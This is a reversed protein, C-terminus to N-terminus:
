TVMDVSINFITLENQFVNKEEGNPNLGLSCEHAGFTSVKSFLFSKFISVTFCVSVTFHRLPKHPKFM